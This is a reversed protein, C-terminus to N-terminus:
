NWYDLVEERQPQWFEVGEIIRKILNASTILMYGAAQLFSSALRLIERLVKKPGLCKFDASVSYRGSLTGKVNLSGFVDKPNQRYLDFTVRAIDRGARQQNTDLANSFKAAAPPKWKQGPELAMLVVNDPLSMLFDETDVVTGDEECALVVSLSSMCLMLAQCVTERLEELNRANVVKRNCRDHSCVRFPKPAAPAPSWVRRTVSRILSSTTEM